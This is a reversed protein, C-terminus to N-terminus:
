SARDSVNASANGSALHVVTPLLVGHESGNSAGRMLCYVSPSCPFLVPPLVRTPARSRTPLMCGVMEPTASIPRCARTLRSQIGINGQHPQARLGVCEQDMGEPYVANTGHLRTLRFIPSEHSAGPTCCLPTLSNPMVEGRQAARGTSGPVLCTTDFPIRMSQSRCPHKTPKPVGHQRLPGV